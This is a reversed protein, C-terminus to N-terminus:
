RPHIGLGSPDLGSVQAAARCDFGRADFDEIPSIGRRGSMLADWTESATLGLSSVLGFGTIMVKDTM